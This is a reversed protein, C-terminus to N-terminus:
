ARWSGHLRLTRLEYSSSQESPSNSKPQMVKQMKGLGLGKVVTVGGSLTKRIACVLVASGTIWGKTNSEQLVMRGCM